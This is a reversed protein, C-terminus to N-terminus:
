LRKYVAVQAIHNKTASTTTKIYQNLYGAELDIKHIRYGLAAYFRNQDFTKGNVAKKNGINLFVEDQLALFFGKSFAPSSQLPLVNRIFYRLRHAAVHGTVELATNKAAAVPLFRQELRVRHTTTLTKWKHSILFQEWIRHEMIYGTIEDVTKRNPIFAYGLTASMNKAFHYNIGPRLLLTQINKLEDTSRLQADFHLSWKNHLGITNFSALWGSHQNQAQVYLNGLCFLLLFCPKFKLM